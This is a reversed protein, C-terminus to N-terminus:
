KSKRVKRVTYVESAGNVMRFVLLGGGMPAVETDFRSKEDLQVPRGNVTLKAGVPAIGQCRVKAGGPDGNKPAKITLNPVANDYTIVLKNMKGTGGIENGAADLYKLSWMYAGENLAGEPLMVKDDAVVKEAVSATLSEKRYVQVKYKKAEPAPQWSFTVAPPKDQFYITTQDAGDNVVNRNHALDVATAEPAFSASGKAVEKDAEDYVHWYLSGRSPAPVNVHRQHVVGSILKQKYAPDSAVEVRYPKDPDGEWTISLRGAGSQLVKLASRSPLAVQERGQEESKVQGKLPIAATRGGKVMAPGEGEREIKVDGAISVLEYGDKTRRLVYQSAKEATLTVGGGLNLRSKVPSQAALEGKKIDFGAEEEGAGKAAKDMTVESGKAFALTGQGGPAQMVVRGDKVRFSDGESLATAKKGLASWKTDEKRKLEARGSSSITVQIPELDYVTGTGAGLKGNQGAGIKTVKGDNAVLDVNGLKVDVRAEKENVTLTLDAEGLGVKTFGFPTLITLEVQSGPLPQAPANTATRTLVLGQSVSLVIGGEGEKLEFRGEPGLEVLRGGAFRITAEGDEGTDLVDGAYLYGLQAPAKKGAREVTVAGKLQELLASATKAEPKPGSDPAAVPVPPAKPADGEPCGALALGLLAVRLARWGPLSITRSAPQEAARKV